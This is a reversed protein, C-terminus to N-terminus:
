RWIVGAIIGAVTIVSGAVWQWNRRVFSRGTYLRDVQVEVERVFSPVALSREGYGRVPVRMVASVTLRHRGSGNPVADFDWTATPSVLQEGGPPNLRKITFSPGVVDVSMVAATPVAEVNKVQSRAVFSAIMDDDLHDDRSILVTLTDNRGQRLHPVQLVLTGLRVEIGLAHRVAADLSSSPEKEVVGGRYRQVPGGVTSRSRPPLGLPSEFPNTEDVRTRSPPSTPPRPPLAQGPPSEGPRTEEVRQSPPAGLLM